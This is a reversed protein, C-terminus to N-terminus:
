VSLTDGFIRSLRLIQGFPLRRKLLLLKLGFRYTVTSFGCKVESPVWDILVLHANSNDLLECSWIAATSKLRHLPRGSSIHKNSRNGILQSLM